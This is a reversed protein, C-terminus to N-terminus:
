GRAARRDNKRVATAYAEALLPQITAEFTAASPNLICVWYMRGYVPHPLLTDLAAFDYPSETPAEADDPLAPREGFLGTFTAKSVGVNLRYVGPRDLDSAADNFNSRVLTAFPMMKTPDYFFFTDGNATVTEVGDFTGTIYESVAADDM